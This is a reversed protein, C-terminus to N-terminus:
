TPLAASEDCDIQVVGEDYIRTAGLLWDSYIQTSMSLDKRISIDSGMPGKIRKIAGKVWCVCKRINGATTTTQSTGDMKPLRKVKIFKFGMFTDIDGMTLAKVTNYDSSTAKTQSLLSEIEYATVVIVRPADSDLLDADDLIRNATKLKDVTLGVATGSTANVAGGKGIWQLTNDFATVTSGLEGTMVSGIAANWAVDDCDRHYAFAHTQVYESTPLVLQGLNKADDKDLLNALDYSSHYAWRFDTSTDQIQTPGKRETRRRSAQSALRDYRKREGQFPEDVVFADLRAKTQQARQIWNTSFETTFHQPITDSMILNTENRAAPERAPSCAM